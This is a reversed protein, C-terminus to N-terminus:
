PLHAINVAQVQGSGTNTVLLTTGNPELAFQRPTMGSAIIGALAPKNALAKSVDILALNSKGGAVQDRNSDALLIRSGHDLMIMGLPLQGVAVRAILAHSADNVLKPASYALLANGGGVTVWVDKGDPSPLVRAPGCGAGVVNVSADAGKTEAKRADLIVLSGKGSATATDALGSTVYLYRQDASLAVGIAERGVGIVRVLDAPGFGKSLARRLNFVALQGSKQLTVFAFKAGPSLAVEVAHRGGPSSLTGLPTSSGQELDAVRFVTLGSGATVLLYKQDPTMTEGQAGSLPVTRILTPVFKATNLVAVGTSGSVFGFGNHTTVVDFPKGGIASQRTPIGTLAKASAAATTCGPLTVSAGGHGGGSGHLLLYGGAAAALVVVAAGAALWGRRSRRPRGPGPPQPYGPPPPTVPGTTGPTGTDRGPAQVAQTPPGPAAAGPMVPQGAAAPPQAAWPGPSGGAAGPPGAAWPDPSGGAAAPPRAGWPDAPPPAPPQGGAAAALDAPNVAQTPRRGPAAPGGPAAEGPELGCARRLAAAFELCSGYRDAPTKALARAMVQDVAAPLEPRRSTVAPPATSMQAWMIALTENQKFPPAGTLMEFTSCALAYQDTRGDVARGEIQEPAVYNLTGLFHGKSTLGSVSLSHKSLGFDSLYVHDDHGSGAAADRLMNAPKVDRHVLGHAHAADLASAVQTIISAARAVPLPGRSDIITQVDRGDVFRMAIFLIGAAEGAEFIPIINPHDVAAAARSERIFRQRFEQDRALEPALIKLAVRRQLRVDYARYVVAMGGRGIPEDLRYGAVQTGIGFEAPAPTEDSV